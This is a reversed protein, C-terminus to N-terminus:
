FLKKFENKKTYETIKHQTDLIEHLAEPNYHDFYIPEDDTHQVKM